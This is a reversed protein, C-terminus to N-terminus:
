FNDYHSRQKTVKLDKLMSSRANLTFSYSKMYGFPVFNFSMEWCHMDRFVSFNTFAFKRAMIDYNTNMTLRWKDTLSMSGNVGITQFFTAKVYPNPRSYNFSYDLSINWPINFDVYDAYDGPLVKDEEIAEQTAQAQGEGKKSQFQLGFSLNARDLRGIKALGKRHNWVYQNIIMGKRDTMYPNINTGFNISIGKITTRGQISIPSLNLSDAILNYSTNFSLNDILKVKKFKATGTTDKTDLVKMELNNSVSLSISGSSGRGTYGYIGNEVYSYYEMRGTSDVQVRDWMGFKSQGFDPRYSFSLSPTIKHRIGKVRSNPNLPMFSGYINTSTSLSYSYSYDRKLGSLTDIRVHTQRGFRDIFWEDPHYSKKISTFYWSENYSFGPSVNIYTFLNFNPLSIPINHRIGNQWDKTLSKHMIEKEKATISNRMNASYTFGFKEYWKPVGSGAKSKLPYFRAVNFTLEPLTLTLTSDISNQSHRLNASMSFPTNEWRKTYSVSSSKQTRLYNQASLSNQKDYGSTSFNVNASFTRNPNAKPDQSHSWMIQFQPSRNYTDLGKEGYVNLAYRFDFGGSFKYRVRYNTHFKAAWSGRSYIDGRVAADFYENAAWYYGGERLFFGRNGEEGYSPILIGSSYSPSNPFYGFPIVPFYLPFDELVMYAPGTIIKKNSIVKAKSLHLYFHPHDADCTTYKGRQLIFADKSIKKTRTSHVFGEGQQTVVDTIIGKETEFNYRLTKSEFEENGDKFVPQGVLTGTSDPRGEAYIEKTELNLEIYDAVLEIQQYTVKANKYMFVRQGDFSVVISDEANYVIPAEIRAPRVSDAALSDVAVLPARLLSDNQQLTDPLLELLDSRQLSTDLLDPRSVVPRLTNPLEQGYSIIAVM